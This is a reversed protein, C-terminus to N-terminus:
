VNLIFVEYWGLFVSIVMLLFDVVFAVVAIIVSLIYNKKSM